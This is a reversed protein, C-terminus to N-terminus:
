LRRRHHGFILGLLGLVLPVVGSPEPVVSFRDHFNGPSVTGGYNNLDGGITGFGTCVGEDCNIAGGGSALINNVAIIGEGTKTLTNDNLTLTNTFIITSGNAVDVTTPDHLNVDTQFEHTGAVSMSPSAMTDISMALNVSGHGGVVYGHTPNNFEIRNLTVASNTVVTTPGSVADAFVATHNPSNARLGAAPPTGEFSWNHSDSWEKVGNIVWTFITSEPTSPGGVGTLCEEWVDCIRIEDMVPGGDASSASLSVSYNTNGSFDGSKIKVRQGWDADEDGTLTAPNHLLEIQDKGDTDITIRMAFFETEGTGLPRIAFPETGNNDFFAMQYGISLGVLAVTGVGMKGTVPNPSVIELGGRNTLDQQTVFTVFFKGDTGFVGDLAASPSNHMVVDANRPNCCRAVQVANGSTTYGPYDLGPSVITTTSPLVAAEWDGFGALPQGAPGYNFSDGFFLEASAFGSLGLVIIMSITLTFVNKIM